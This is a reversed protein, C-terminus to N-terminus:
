LHAGLGVTTRFYPDTAWRTGFEDRTELVAFPVSAAMHLFLRATLAVSLEAVPGFSAGTSNTVGTQGPLSAMRAYSPEGNFSTSQRLVLVGAELGLGFSVRGAEFIRSTGLTSTLYTSEVLFADVSRTSREWSVQWALLYDALHWRLQAVLTPGLWNSEDSPEALNFPSTHGGAALVAALRRARQQQSTTALPVPVSPALPTAVVEPAATAPEAPSEEVSLPGDGRLSRVAAKVIQAVTERVVLEADKGEPRDVTRVMTAGGSLPAPLYVRLSVPSTLDIWIRAGGAPTAAPLQADVPLSDRGAWRLDAADGVLPRLTQEMQSRGDEPGAILIEIIRAQSPPPSKPVPPEAAAALAVLLPLMAMVV